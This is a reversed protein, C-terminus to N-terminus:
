DTELEISATGANTQYYLNSLPDDDTNKSLEKWESWGDALYVTDYEVDDNGSGAATLWNGAITDNPADEVIKLFLVTATTETIRLRYRRVNDTATFTHKKTAITSTIGTLFKNHKQAPIGQDAVHAAGNAGGLFSGDGLVISQAEIIQEQGNPDLVKLRM